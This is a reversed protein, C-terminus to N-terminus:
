NSGVAAPSADRVFAGIRELAQRIQDESVTYAFRLHEKGTQGFTEGALCAVGAEELLRGALERSSIGTGSVNPFAYFSALPLHCRIGPIANLGAVIV